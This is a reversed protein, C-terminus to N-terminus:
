SSRLWKDDDLNVIEHCFEVSLRKTSLLALPTADNGKRLLLYQEPKPSLTFRRVWPGWVIVLEADEKLNLVRILVLGVNSRPFTHKIALGSNSTRRTQKSQNDQEKGTEKIQEIAWDIAREVGNTAIKVLIQQVLAELM